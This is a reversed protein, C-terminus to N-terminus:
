RLSTVIAYQRQLFYPTVLLFIAAAVTHRLPPTVAAYRRCAAADLSCAAFITDRTFDVAFLMLRLM